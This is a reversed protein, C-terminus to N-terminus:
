TSRASKCLRGFGLVPNAFEAAVESLKEARVIARVDLLRQVLDAREGPVRLVGGQHEPDNRAGVRHVGGRDIDRHGVVPGREPLPDLLCSM